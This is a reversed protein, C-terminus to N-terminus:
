GMFAYPIASGAADRADQIVTTTQNILTVPASMLGVAVLLRRAAVGVLFISFLCGYLLHYEFREERRRAARNTQAAVQGAGAASHGLTIDMYSEAM